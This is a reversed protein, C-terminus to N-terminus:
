SRRRGRSRLGGPGPTDLSHAGTRANWAWPGIKLGWSTFGRQTFNLRVPGIKVTRRMRYRM